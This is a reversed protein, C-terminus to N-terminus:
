RPLDGAPLRGADDGPRAPAADRRFLDVGAQAGRRCISGDLLQPWEGGGARAALHNLDAMLRLNEEGTFLEDVASFQGTVGIAARVGDPDRARRPRRGQDGRDAAILTSLIRVITTKGAGNPGLLAFITGEAVTLDVRRAGGHRRVVQERRRGIAAASAGTMSSGAQRRADPLRGAAVLAQRRAEWEQQLLPIREVLFDAFASMELLVARRELPADRVVELGERALEGLEEYESIDMGMAQPSGLDIRVRDMREGAARSRRIAHM